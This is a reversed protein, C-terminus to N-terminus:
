KTVESNKNKGELEKELQREKWADYLIDEWGPPQENEDPIDEYVLDSEDEELIVEMPDPEDIFGELTKNQSTEEM